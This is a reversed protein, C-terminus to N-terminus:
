AAGLKDNLAQWARADLVQSALQCMGAFAEPPANKRVGDLMEFREPLNMAPLMLAAFAAM